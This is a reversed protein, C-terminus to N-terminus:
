QGVQRAVASPLPAAGVGELLATKEPSDDVLEEIAAAIADRMDAAAQDRQEKLQSEPVFSTGCYKCSWRNTMVPCGCEYQGTEELRHEISNHFCHAPDNVFSSDNQPVKM